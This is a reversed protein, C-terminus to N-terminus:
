IFIILENVFHNVYNINTKNLKNGQLSNDDKLKQNNRNPQVSDVDFDLPVNLFKKLFICNFSIIKYIIVSLHHHM